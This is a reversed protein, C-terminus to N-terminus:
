RKSLRMNELVSFIRYDKQAFYFTRREQMAMKAAISARTGSRKRRAHRTTISSTYRGANEIPANAHRNEAAQCNENGHKEKGGLILGHSL